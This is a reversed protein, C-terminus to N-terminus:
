GSTHFDVQGCVVVVFLCGLGLRSELGGEWCVLARSRMAVPVSIVCYKGTSNTSM